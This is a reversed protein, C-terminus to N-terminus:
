SGIYPLSINIGPELTITKHKCYPLQCPRAVPSYAISLRSTPRGAYSADEHAAWLAPVARGGGAPPAGRCWVVGCWVSQEGLDSRSRKKRLSDIEQVV